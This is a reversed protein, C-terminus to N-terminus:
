PGVQLVGGNLWPKGSGPDSTSLESLDMAAFLAPTIAALVANVIATGTVNFPTANGPAAVPFLLTGAFATTTAASIKTDAM